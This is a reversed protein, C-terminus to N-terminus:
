AYSRHENRVTQECCKGRTDLHLFALHFAENKKKKVLDRFCCHFHFFNKCLGKLVLLDSIELIAGDCREISVGLRLKM